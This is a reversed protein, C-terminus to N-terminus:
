RTAKAQQALMQDVQYVVSWWRQHWKRDHIEKLQATAEADRGLAFLTQARRMRWTPNTQDIVVAQQWYGVADDLRGEREMVEAVLAWGDGEMPHREIATSLQRWAEDRRGAALLLEGIQRDIAANDPDVDRWRDAVAVAADVAADRAAGTTLTAVRGRLTLLRTMDERLRSLPVPGDGDGALAEELEDAADTVRGQREAVVSALRLLAPTRATALAADVLPAARDIQGYALSQQIISAMADPDGAALDAARGLARDIDDEGLQSASALLATVQELDDSALAQNRYASWALQWGVQGRTSSQMASKATWDITAPMAAPDWGAMLDAFRDAAARYDGRQYVARAAEYRAVNRWAGEAVADWAEAARPSQWSWQQAIRAAAIVRLTSAGHGARLSALAGTLKDAEVFALTERHRALAGVLGDGAIPAFVGTRPKKQYARSAALYKGVARGREGAAALLEVLRKDEVWQRGGSALVLDGLEAGGHAVLAQYGAIAGGPDHTAAQAAMLQRTLHRWEAGGEGTEALRNKWYAPPRLPLAVEVADGGTAGALSAPADAVASAVHTVAVAEGLVAAGVPEGRDWRITVLAQGAASRVAVLHYDADLELELTPADPAAAPALAITHDDKRTVVYWRALQDPDMPVLPLTTVVLAPTADGLDRVLDLGLEPYRRRLRTGDFTALEELGSDHVVRWAMRGSADVTIDPSDGWRYVGAALHRRAEALLRRADDDVRGRAGGAVARLDAIAGDLAGAFFAPVFETLDDLRWDQVYNYAAPYPAGGYGGYRAHAAHGDWGAGQKRRARDGKAGVAWSNTREALEGSSVTELDLDGGVPLGPGSAPRGTAAGATDPAPERAVTSDLVDVVDESPKDDSAKAVETVAATATTRSTSGEPAAGGGGLAGARGFGSGTGSGFRTTGDAVGGAFWVSQQNASLALVGNDLGDRYGWGYADYSYFPETPTRVLAVDAAAALLSPPTATNVEITAPVQYPAWAVHRDREVHYQAYMADNELVLLSTHPSLLFYRTGLAVIEKRLTERFAVRQDEYSPCPEGACPMPPPATNREVMLATVRRQAWLRPLYGADGAREARGLDVRHQWPAGARQGALEVTAVEAGRPTRIVVEVEDGDAIQRGRLYAIAGDVTRGAPDLVRSTLGVVRPTYLAAVADLARWPLDDAPDVPVVMGGTADALASLTPVDAGDGVAFGVFTAHGQLPRRLQALDRDGGTVVGDGLYVVYADQPDTGVDGLLRTAEALAAGLDTAGVGGHERNLAARVARRDIDAARQFDGVRRVGVDFTAIAVQDDEDITDILRDVLEAQARRELSDRSGSVDDLIVWRRPRHEAVALGATLDPRTRVLLYDHGDDHAAAVRDARDPDRVTLVLSDGVPEGARRYTVVAADGDHAVEVAHSPSHVECTGCDAIRVKFAVDDVPDDLDPLPVTLTWDDYLRPLAQDYTVLLRKDQSPPLPFIRLDVKGAGTWEALAPDRRQYVIDEYIRRGAMREVVASEMLTGDVYMALRSLAADPPVAFRYVGELTEPRPNHFTQDLAVRAVQNEVFVDVTLERMPLPFDQQQWQPNRAYLTGSRRRPGATEAQVRALQAWGVLHSLRPAPGRTPVQGRAMTGQQGAHLVADGADSALKVTGRLVAATTTDDGADVVFRTGLVEVRGQATDVVFTGQGPAVDLYAQGHVRVRRAAVVDVTAGDGLVVRTGDGLDVHRGDRAVVPAAGDDAAGGGRLQAVVMVATSAAVLGVGAFMLGSVRRRPPAATAAAQAILQERIRVRADRAIRPPDYSSGLLSEVNQELMQDRDRTRPSTM